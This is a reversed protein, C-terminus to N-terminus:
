NWQTGDWWWLNGTNTDRAAASQSPPNFPPPNGGWDGGYVFGGIGGGTFIANALWILAPLQTQRPLCAYQAANAELTPCDITMGALKAFLAILIPMEMGPHKCLWHQIQISECAIEQGPNM